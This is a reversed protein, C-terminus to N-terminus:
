KRKTQLLRTAFFVSLHGKLLIKHHSILNEKIEKKLYIGKTTLLNLLEQAKAIVHGALEIPDAAKELKM